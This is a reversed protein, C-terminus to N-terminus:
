ETVKFFTNYHDSSYYIEGGGGTVIRRAGRDRAGPTPVTYERYYGVPKTPLRRERNQFVTGDKQYPFSGNQRILNLTDKAQSPLKHISITPILAVIISGTVNAATKIQGQVEAAILGIAALSTLLWNGVKRFLKM